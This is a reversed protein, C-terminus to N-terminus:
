TLAGYGTTVARSLREKGKLPFTPIPIPREAETDVDVTLAHGMGGWGEGQFPPRIATRRM